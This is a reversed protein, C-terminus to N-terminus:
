QFVIKRMRRLDTQSRLCHFNDVDGLIVVVFSVAKVHAELDM